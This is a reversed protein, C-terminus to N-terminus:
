AWARREVMLAIPSLSGNARLSRSSNSTPNDVKEGSVNLSLTSRLKMSKSWNPGPWYDNMLLGCTIRTRQGLGLPDRPQHVLAAGTKLTGAITRSRRGVAPVEICRQPVVLIRLAQLWRGAFNSQGDGRYPKGHQIGTGGIGKGLDGSAVVHLLGPEPQGRSPMMHALVLECRPVQVRQQGSVAM